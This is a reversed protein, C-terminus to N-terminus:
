ITYMSTIGTKSKKNKILDLIIRKIVGRNQKYFHLEQGVKFGYSKSHHLDVIYGSMIGQDYNSLLLIHFKNKINKNTQDVRIIYKKIQKKFYDCQIEKGINKMIDYHMDLNKIYGEFIMCYGKGIIGCKQLYGFLVTPNYALPIFVDKYFKTKRIGDHLKIAINGVERKLNALESKIDPNQFIELMEIIGILILINKITNLLAEDISLEDIDKEELTDLIQLNEIKEIPPRIDM